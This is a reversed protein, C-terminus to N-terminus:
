CRCRCCYPCDLLVLLPPLLLLLLLLPILTTLPVLIKLITKNRLVIITGPTPNKKSSSTQRTRRNIISAIWTPCAEEKKTTTTAKRIKERGPQNTKAVCQQIAPSLASGYATDQKRVTRADMQESSQLLPSSPNQCCIQKGLVLHVFKLLFVSQLSSCTLLYKLVTQAIVQKFNSSSLITM